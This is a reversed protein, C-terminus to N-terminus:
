KASHNFWQTFPENPFLKLDILKYPKIGYLGFVPKAIIKNLHMSFHLQSVTYFYLAFIEQREM